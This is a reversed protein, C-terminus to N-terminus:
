ALEIPPHRNRLELIVKKWQNYTVANMQWGVEYEKKGHEDTIKYIIVLHPYDM